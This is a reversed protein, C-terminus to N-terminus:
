IKEIEITWEEDDLTRKELFRPNKQGIQWETALTESM